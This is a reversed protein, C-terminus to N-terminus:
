PTSDRRRRTRPMPGCRTTGTEIALFNLKIRHEATVRLRARRHDLRARVLLMALPASRNWTRL